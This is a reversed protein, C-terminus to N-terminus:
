AADEQEDEDEDERDDALLPDPEGYAREYGEAYGFEEECVVEGAEFEVCLGWDMGGEYSLYTIGLSPFREALAEVFPRSHRWRTEYSIWADHEIPSPNDPAEAVGRLRGEVADADPGWCTLRWRERADFLDGASRLLRGLAGAAAVAEPYEAPEPVLVTFTVGGRDGKPMLVRKAAEVGEAPGRLFVHNTAWNAM